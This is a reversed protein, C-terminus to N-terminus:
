PVYQWGFGCCSKRKNNCVDPIHKSANFKKNADAACDFIEIIKGTNLDVQAVRRKRIDRILQGSSIIKVKNRLLIKEITARDCNFEDATAAVSKRGLYFNCVDGDSLDIYSTGDGGLTENYGKKYTNYKKIYHKERESPTDTEELVEFIFHEEGYKRIARYLARTASRKKRAERLHEKWRRLPDAQETKGIYSKQNITNTIKYIYPIM